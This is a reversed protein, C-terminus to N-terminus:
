PLRYNNQTVLDVGCELGDIWNIFENVVKKGAFARGHQPVIMEIELQRVMNAWLNCVKNSNMYRRHFGEMYPLIESLKKVPVNLD